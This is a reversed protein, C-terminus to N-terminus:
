FSHRFINRENKSELMWVKKGSWLISSSKTFKNILVPNSISSFWFLILFESILCHKNSMICFHMDFYPLSILYMSFWFVVLIMLRKYLWSLKALGNDSNTPSTASLYSLWSALSIILSRVLSIKWLSECCSVIPILFTAFNTEFSEFCAGFATYRLIPLRSPNKSQSAYRRLYDSILIKLLMMWFIRQWSYSM